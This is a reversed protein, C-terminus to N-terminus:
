AVVDDPGSTEGGGGPGHRYRQHWLREVQHRYISCLSWHNCSEVVTCSAWAAPCSASANTCAVVPIVCSAATCSASAAAAIVCAAGVVVTCAVVTCAVVDDPWSTCAVVTCTMTGDTIGTAAAPVGKGHLMDSTPSTRTATEAARRRLRDRLACSAPRLRAPWSERLECTAAEAARRRLRDRLTCSAPRPRAARLECTVCGAAGSPPAAGAM